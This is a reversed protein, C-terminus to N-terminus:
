EGIPKGFENELHELLYYVYDALYRQGEFDFIPQNNDRAEQYARKLRVAKPWTFNVQTTM